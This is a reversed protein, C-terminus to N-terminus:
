LFKSLSHLVETTTRQMNTQELKIPRKRPVVRSTIKMLNQELPGRRHQSELCFTQFSEGRM